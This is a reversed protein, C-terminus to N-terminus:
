GERGGERFLGKFIKIKLSGTHMHMHLADYYFFNFREAVM